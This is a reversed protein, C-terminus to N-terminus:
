SPKRAWAIWKGVVGEGLEPPAPRLAPSLREIIFRRLLDRAEAEDCYHHPLYGDFDAPKKRQDVFTNPEVEMVEGETVAGRLYQYDWTDTCPFDVLLIGGPKLVRYIEDLALQIEARLGHHITRTSLTADFAADSWPLATM